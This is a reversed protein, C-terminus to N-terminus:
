IYLYKQTDTINKVSSISSGVALFFEEGFFIEEDILKKYLLVIKVFEIHIYPKIM